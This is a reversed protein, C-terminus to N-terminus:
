NVLSLHIGFPDIISAAPHHIQSTVPAVLSLYKNPPRTNAAQMLTHPLTLLTFHHWPDFAKLDSTSPPDTLPLPKTDFQRHRLVGFGLESMMQIQEM